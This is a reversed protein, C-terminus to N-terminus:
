LIEEFNKLGELNEIKAILKMKEGGDVGRLKNRVTEMNEATRVLSIAVM